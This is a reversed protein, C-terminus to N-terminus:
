AAKDRLLALIAGTPKVGVLSCAAELTLAVDGSTIAEKLSRRLAADQHAITLASDILGDLAANTNHDM